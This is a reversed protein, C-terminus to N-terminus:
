QSGESAVADGELVINWFNRTKPDVGRRRIANIVAGGGYFRRVASAQDWNGFMLVRELVWDPYSALDAVHLKRDWFLPSLLRCLKAPSRGAPTSGSATGAVLSVELRVGLASAIKRLTGLEFRDWGSEYRHLTPASTGARNALEALSWGRGIRLSRIQVGIPRVESQMNNDNVIINYTSCTYRDLIYQFADHGNGDWSM